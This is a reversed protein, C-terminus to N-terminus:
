LRQLVAICKSAASDDGSVYAATIAGEQMISIADLLLPDQNTLHQAIVERVRQKHLQCFASVDSNPNSFEASSNIFFCGRFHGLMTESDSFWGALGTFLQHIVKEDTDAGQLKLTLWEIFISHRQELAALVLAEKSEFHSYLTKKAVGSVKLIENIGISNIGNEYFLDLATDILLQRKINM